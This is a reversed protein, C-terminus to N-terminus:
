SGPQTEGATPTPHNILAKPIAMFGLKWKDLIAKYTGNEILEDIAGRMANILATDSPLIGIGYHVPSLSIGGLAELQSSRQAQYANLEEADLVADARGAAVSQFAGATDPYTELKIAPRGASVCNDQSLSPILSQFVSGQVESFTLGCFDALSKIGKPNHAAVAVTFAHRTYDVMTVQQERVATDNMGPWMVDWRHSLVGPIIGNLESESFQIKVGLVAGAARALDVDVGMPQNDSAYDMPPNVTTTAVRLVGSSKIADPLMDHLATVEAPNPVASSNAAGSETSGARTSSDGSGASSCACLVLAAVVGASVAPTSRTLRAQRHTRVHM